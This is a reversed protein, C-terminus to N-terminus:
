YKLSRLTFPTVPGDVHREYCFQVRVSFAHFADSEGPSSRKVVCKVQQASTIKERQSPTVKFCARTHTMRPHEAESSVTQRFKKMLGAM